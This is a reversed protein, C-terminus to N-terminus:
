GGFPWLPQDCDPRQAKPNWYGCSMIAKNLFKLKILWERHHWLAKTLGKPDKSRQIIFCFYM